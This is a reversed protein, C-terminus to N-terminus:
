AVQSLAGADTDIESARAGRRALEISQSGANCGIDRVTAGRLEQPILPDLRRWHAAADGIAAKATSATKMTLAAGRCM